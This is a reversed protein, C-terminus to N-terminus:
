EIYDEDNGHVDLPVNVRIYNFKAIIDTIRNSKVNKIPQKPPLKKPFVNNNEEMIIINSPSTSIPSVSSVMSIASHPSTVPSTVSRQHRNRHSNNNREFQKKIHIPLPPPKINIKTINENTNHTHIQDINNTNGESSEETENDDENIDYIDWSSPPPLGQTTCTHVIVSDNGNNTNLNLPTIPPLAYTVASQTGLHDNKLKYNVSLNNPSTKHDSKNNNHHEVENGVSSSHYKRVNRKKLINSSSGASAHIRTVKFGLKRLVNTM